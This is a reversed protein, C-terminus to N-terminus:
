PYRPQDKVSEYYANIGIEKISDNANIWKERFGPYINGKECPYDTCEFCFSLQKEKICSSIKCAGNVCKGSRCGTCGATLIFDLFEKFHSYKLFIENMHSFREAYPAFNGLADSLERSHHVISSEPNFMCKECNLGCPAINDIIESM